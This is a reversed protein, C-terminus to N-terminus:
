SRRDRDQGGSWRSEGSVPPVPARSDFAVKAVSQEHEWQAAVEAEMLGAPRGAVAGLGAIAAAARANVGTRGTAM